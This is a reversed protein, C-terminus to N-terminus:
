VMSHRRPPYRLSVQEKPIIEITVDGATTSSTIIKQALREEIPLNAYDASQESHVPIIGLTPNVLNCVDALFGASAHGSTHLKEVNPFNRLFELYEKKAHRGGERAYEGWM